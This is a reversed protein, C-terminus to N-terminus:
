LNMRKNWIKILIAEKAAKPYIRRLTNPSSSLKIIIKFYSTGYLNWSQSAICLHIRASKNTIRKINFLIITLLISELMKPYYMKLKSCNQQFCLKRICSRVQFLLRSIIKSFWDWWLLIHMQNKQKIVPHRNEISDQDLYRFISYNGKIRIDSIANVFDM